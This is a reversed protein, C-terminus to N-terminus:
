LLKSRKSSDRFLGIFENKGFLILSQKLGNYVFVIVNLGKFALAVFHDSLSLCDTPLLRYITQTHKVMKHPQHKFLYFSRFFFFTCIAM